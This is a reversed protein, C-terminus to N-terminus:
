SRDETGEIASERALLIDIFMQRHAPTLPELPEARRILGVPRDYEIMLPMLLLV